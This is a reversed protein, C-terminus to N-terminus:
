GRIHVEVTAHVDHHEVLGVRAPEVVGRAKGGLRDVGPVETHASKGVEVTQRAKSRVYVQSAPNEGVLVVALGPTLGHTRGLSQVAEAIRGRLGDAFAKGDILAATM